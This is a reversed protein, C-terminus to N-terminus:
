KKEMRINTLACQDGTLSMYIDNFGEHLISVSEIAIGANETIVSIKNGSRKILIECDMGEKLTEKWADWGKFDLTRNVQISNEAYYSEWTEGDLRILEFIKYNDGRIKKNDSYFFNIYPCHWILRATPLTKAHFSLKMEEPVLVGETGASCWGDVQVNPVDGEPVDIYSIKEAIRPIFNKELKSGIRIEVEDILCYMGTIALYAFRSCDPLAIIYKWIQYENSIQVLVHDEIKSAEVQYYIGQKCIDSWSPAKKGEKIIEETKIKRAGVCKTNGDFMLEAYEYYNMEKIKVETAHIRADLSDFLILAPKSKYQGKKKDPKFLFNIRTINDSLRLGGSKSARFEECVLQNKGALENVSEREKMQYESDLDIMHVMIKAYQPDFQTGMGKVIEERVKQQPIPERYSRKSAMADYADAVAIIRAISPIDDGKLGEPYGRGDYREHHYNAGISLYPSTSISSLIQKGIVPHKKIEAFEEDTLKGEKNIIKDPIGIKGVDHLLAAFYVEECEKENKGALEAIKKSYEAVRTSHGHTYKDKADIANALASATQEFMLRVNKQEGRLYKIEMINVREATKNVDILAFVYLLVVLGVITMNTLSIGYYFFQIISAILPLITFMLLSVHIGKSLQKKYQMIVSLQLVLIILPILYCIFFYPARQYQNLEDFTYYFGTFQSIIVLIEGIIFSLEAIKLRKPVKKLKGENLYLDILYLNFTDIVFLLMFYVLFNCIRVMWFGLASVDGRYIYAFRDAILLIMSGIEMLFLTVKRKKTLTRTILVFIAIIGCIGSIVLMFNLQHEKLFDM